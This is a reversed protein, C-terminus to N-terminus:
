KKHGEMGSYVTNDLGLWIRLGISFGGVMLGITVGRYASTNAVMLLKDALTPLRLFSMSDPLFSGFWAGIPMQGIMVVCASLMLLAADLSRIRFSRYAASIMYFTIMSFVTTSMATIVGDFMFSYGQSWGQWVDPLTTRGLATFLAMIALSLFFIISHVSGTELKGIRKGHFMVLNILAIFIAFSGIIQLYTGATQM